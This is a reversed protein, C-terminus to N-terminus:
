AIQNEGTQNDCMKGIELLQVDRISVEEKIKLVNQMLPMFFFLFWKVSYILVVCAM